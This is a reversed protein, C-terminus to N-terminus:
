CRVRTVCAACFWSASLDIPIVIALMEDLCPWPWARRSVFITQPASLTAIARLQALNGAEDAPVLQM